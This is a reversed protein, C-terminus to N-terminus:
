KGKPFLYRVAVYLMGTIQMITVTVLLKFSWDELHFQAPWRIAQFFSFAFILGTELALFIFLRNLTERKLKIDQEVNDNKLKQERVIEDNIDISPASAVTRYVSQDYSTLTKDESAVTASPLLSTKPTALQDLVNLYHDVDANRTPREVQPEHEAM